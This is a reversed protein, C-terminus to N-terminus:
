NSSLYLNYEDLETCIQLIKEKFWEETEMINSCNKISYLTTSHHNVGIYPAIESLSLKTYLRLIYAAAQRGHITSQKRNKAKIDTDFVEEVLQVIKNPKISKNSITVAIDDLIIGERTMLKHLFNFSDKQMKYADHIQKQISM